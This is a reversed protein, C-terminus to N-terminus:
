STSSRRPYRGTFLLVVGAFCVLLGILGGGSTWTAHDNTANWGAWAGGAFVGVVLYHPLALLWWKVLALGRSLESRTSSRWGRPTTRSTPSRSRRTATPESRATPTSARRALDLAARRPQLRLDRASLPRHLPDRRAGGAVARRVRDVPVRARHLAPDGAAVEGAVALSQASPRARRRAAPSVPTMAGSEVVAPGRRMRSVRAVAHPSSRARTLRGDPRSRARLAGARCAHHPPAQAPHALPPDRGDARQPLAARRDRRQHARPRDPAPRRARARQPRRAGTRRVAPEVAIRAGLAPNLYIGGRAAARVATVLEAGAAEKLVYARAGAQLAERAFAPDSQMTLVVVACTDKVEAIATLSSPGPMNLDLVLVDPHRLEVLRLADPVNGAEGIVHLGEEGQLLLRLGARVVEHDDALVIDIAPAGDDPDPMRAVITRPPRSPVPPRAPRDAALARRGTMDGVAYVDTVGAVRGTEDVVTFGRALAVAHRAGGPVTLLPLAVALGAEIRRGDALELHGASFRDVVAEAMVDVGAEALRAELSEGVREATVVLVDLAEHRDTAWAATQVALEYLPATWM